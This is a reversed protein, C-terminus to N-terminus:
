PQVKTAEPLRLRHEVVAMRQNLDQITALAMVLDGRLLALEDATRESATRTDPAALQVGYPPWVHEYDQTGHTDTM